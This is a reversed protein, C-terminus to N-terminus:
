NECGIPSTAGVIHVRLLAHVIQNVYNGNIAILQQEGRLPDCATAPMPQNGTATRANLWRLRVRQQLVKTVNGSLQAAPRGAIRFERGGGPMAM